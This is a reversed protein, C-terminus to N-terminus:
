GSASSILLLGCDLIDGQVGTRFPVYGNQTSQLPVPIVASSQESGTSGVGVGIKCAVGVGVLKSGLASLVKGDRMPTEVGKSLLFAIIFVGLFLLFSM